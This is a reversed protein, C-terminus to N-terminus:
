VQPNKYSIWQAINEPNPYVLDPIIIFIHPLQPKSLQPQRSSKKKTIFVNKPTNTYIHSQAVGSEITM